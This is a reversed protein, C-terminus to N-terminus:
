PVTHHDPDISDEVILQINPELAPSFDPATTQPLLQEVSAQDAPRGGPFYLDIIDQLAQLSAAGDAASWTQATEHYWGEFAVTNSNSQLLPYMSRAHATFAENTMPILTTYRQLEDYIQASAPLGETQIAASLTDPEEPHNGWVHLLPRLDVGAARSMRLIRSDVDGPRNSNRDYDIGAAFDAHESAWFRELADWGFLQAIIVYHAYGRRQYLKESNPRETRMPLGAQFNPRVTWNMFAQDINVNRNRFSSQSFATDLDLNFVRNMFNVYPLHVVSEVEGRFKTFFLQHGLEHFTVYNVADPGRLFTRAGNNQNNGTPDYPYNSMPYGPFNASGRFTRDVQVYLMTKHTETVGYLDLISQIAADWDQMLQAPDEIEDLWTTPVQIMFHDSELDAWPAAHTQEVQWADASTHDTFSRAAYFPSRVANDFQVNVVGANAEFPVEIYIGGGLPNSVLTTSCLIDFTLSVRDLRTISNKNSLDWTHAGV